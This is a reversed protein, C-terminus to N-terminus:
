PLLVMKGRAGSSCIIDKHAKVVEELPYESGVTPKLWGAEIGDLLATACEHREEQM